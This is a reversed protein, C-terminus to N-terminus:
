RRPLCEGLANGDALAKITTAASQPYDAFYHQYIHSWPSGFTILSLNDVRGKLRQDWLDQLLAELAIVTGQSHALIVLHRCGGKAVLTDIAESFRAAIQRRVPYGRRPELFHNVVDMAFNLGFRLRGNVLLIAVILALLGPAILRLGGPLGNLKQLSIPLRSFGEPIKPFALFAVMMVITSAIVAVQFIESVILRPYGQSTDIAALFDEIPLGAQKRKKVEQADKAIKSSRKWVAVAAAGFVVFIWPILLLEYWYAVTREANWYQVLRVMLDIPELIIATVVVFLMTATLALVAGRSEKDSARAIHPLALVLLILVALTAIFFASDGVFENIAFYKGIGVVPTENIPTSNTVLACLGDSPSREMRVMDWVISLPNVGLRKPYKATCDEVWRPVSHSALWDHLAPFSGMQRLWAGGSFLSSALAFLAFALAIDWPKSRVSRSLGMYAAAAFGLLACGLCLGFFLGNFSTLYGTTTPSTEPPVPSTGLRVWFPVALAVAVLHVPVIIWRTLLFPVASLARVTIPANALARQCIYRLGFLNILLARILTLIQGRVLSIDGWYAEAVRVREAGAKGEWLRIHGDISVVQPTGPFTVNPRAEEIGKCVLDLTEGPKPSGVGHIVAICWDAKGGVDSSYAM